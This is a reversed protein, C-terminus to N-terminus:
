EAGSNDAEQAAQQMAADDDSAQADAADAPSAPMEPRQDNVFAVRVVAVGNELATVSGRVRFEVPDGVQPVIKAPEEKSGAAMPASYDPTALTDAPVRLECNSEDAM